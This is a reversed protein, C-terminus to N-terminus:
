HFDEYNSTRLSGLVGLVGLTAGPFVGARVPIGEPIGDPIGEPIGVGPEPIGVGPRPGGRACLMSSTALCCWCFRREIGPSRGGELMPLLLYLLCQQQKGSAGM